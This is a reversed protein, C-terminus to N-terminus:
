RAAATGSPNCYGNSLIFALTFWKVGTANM